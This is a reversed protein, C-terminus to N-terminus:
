CIEEIIERKLKEDTRGDKIYARTQETTTHGMWESLTKLDIGHKYCNTAYTRRVDHLSRIVTYGLDHQMGQKGLVNFYSSM